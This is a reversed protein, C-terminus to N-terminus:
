ASKWEAVAKNTSSDWKVTLTKDKNTCSAGLAGTCESEVGSGTSELTGQHSADDVAYFYDVDTKFDNGEADVGTLYAITVLSLADRENADDVAHRAKELSSNMMPISVAILIAIIAVVILMEVLTFGGQKKLKKKLNKM